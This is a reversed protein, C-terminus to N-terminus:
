TTPTSGSNPHAPDPVHAGPHPRIWLAGRPWARRPRRDGVVSPWEELSFDPWPEASLLRLAEGGKWGTLNSDGIISGTVIRPERM